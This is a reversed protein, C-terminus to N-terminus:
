NWLDNLTFPLPHQRTHKVYIPRDREGERYRVTYKAREKGWEGETRVEVDRNGGRWGKKGKDRGDEERKGGGGERERRGEGRKGKRRKWENRM